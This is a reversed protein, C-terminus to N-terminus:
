NMSPFLTKAVDKGTNTPEQGGAMKDEKLTKGVRYLLRIFEPHNGMGTVELAQKLEPSGFKDLAKKAVGINEKVTQGGYEKDAMASSRWDNQMKEWAKTNAENQKSMLSAQMDVLKQANEQSIGMEKALGKFNTLAEADVEFGEPLKFDTYEVTKVEEKTKDANSDEVKTDTKDAALLTEDKKDVVETNTNDTVTPETM